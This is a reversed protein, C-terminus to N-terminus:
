HSIVVATINDGGGNNNAATVFREAFEYFKGDATSKLIDDTSVFNTLGDTCIFRM